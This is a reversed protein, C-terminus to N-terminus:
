NDPFFLARFTLDFTPNRISEIFKCLTPGFVHLCLPISILCEWTSTLDPGPRKKPCGFEDNM